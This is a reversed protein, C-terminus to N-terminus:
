EWAGSGGFASADSSLQQLLAMQQQKRSLQQQLDQCEHMLLETAAAACAQLAGASTALTASRQARSSGAGQLLAAGAPATGSAHSTAGWLRPPPAVPASAATGAAGANLLPNSAASWLQAMSMEAVSRAHGAAAAAAAASDTTVPGGAHAMSSTAAALEGLLSSHVYMSAFASMGTMASAAAAAPPPTAMSPAVVSSAATPPPHHLHTRALNFCPVPSM